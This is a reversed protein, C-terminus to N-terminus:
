RSVQLDVDFEGQLIRVVFSGSIIKLDYVADKFDYKSTVVVPFFLKVRWFTVDDVVFSEIVIRSNETTLEDLVVSSKVNQRVQMLATYGDLDMPSGDDETIVLSVERYTGQKIVTDGKFDYTNVM